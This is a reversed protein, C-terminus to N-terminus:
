AAQELGAQANLREEFARWMEPPLAIGPLVPMLGPVPDAAWATFWGSFSPVPRSRGVQAAALAEEFSFIFSVFLGPRARHLDEAMRELGDLELARERSLVGLTIGLHGEFGAQAQELAIEWARRLPDEDDELPVRTLQISFKREAHARRLFEWDDVFDIAAPALGVFRAGVPVGVRLSDMSRRAEEDAQRLDSERIREEEAAVEKARAAQLRRVEAQVLSEARSLMPGVRSRKAEFMERIMRNRQERPLERLVGIGRQLLHSFDILERARQAEEPSVGKAAEAKMMEPSMSVIYASSRDFVDAMDEVDLLGLLAEM